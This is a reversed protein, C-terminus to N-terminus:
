FHNQSNDKEGEKRPFGMFMVLLVHSLLEFDLHLECDPSQEFLPFNFLTHLSSILPLVRIGSPEPEKLRQLFFM